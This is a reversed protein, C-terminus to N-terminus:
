MDASEDKTCAAQSCAAETCWTETGGAQAYAAQTRRGEAGGAQPYRAEESLLLNLLM